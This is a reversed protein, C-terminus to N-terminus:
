LLQPSLIENVYWFVIYAYMCYRTKSLASCVATVSRERGVDGKFLKGNGRRHTLQGEKILLENFNM